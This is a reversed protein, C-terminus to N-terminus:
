SQGYSLPLSSKPPGPSLVLPVGYLVTPMSSMSHARVTCANCSCAAGVSPASLTSCLWRM